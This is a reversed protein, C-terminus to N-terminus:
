SSVDHFGNEGDDDQQGGTQGLSVGTAGVFVAAVVFPTGTSIVAVLVLLVHLNKSERNQRHYQMKWSKGM